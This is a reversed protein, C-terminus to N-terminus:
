YGDDEGYFGHYEDEEGYFGGSPRSRCSGCISSSAGRALKAGCLVCDFRGEADPCGGDDGLPAPGHGCCPFDECHNM